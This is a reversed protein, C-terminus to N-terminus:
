SNDPTRISRYRAFKNAIAIKERTSFIAIAMQKPGKRSADLYNEAPSFPM